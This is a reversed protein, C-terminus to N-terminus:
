NFEISCSADDDDCFRGGYAVPFLDPVLFGFV